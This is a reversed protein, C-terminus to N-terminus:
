FSFSNADTQTEQFDSFNELKMCPLFLCPTKMFLDLPIQKKCDSLLEISAFYLSSSNTINWLDCYQGRIIIDHWINYYLMIFKFELPVFLIWQIILLASVHCCSQVYFLSSLNPFKLWKNLGELIIYFQFYKTLIFPFTFTVADQPFIKLYVKLFQARNWASKKRRYSAEGPLCKLHTSVM